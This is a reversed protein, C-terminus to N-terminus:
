INPADKPGAGNAYDRPAERNRVIQKLTEVEPRLNALQKDIRKKMRLLKELKAQKFRLANEPTSSGDGEVFFLYWDYLKEELEDRQDIKKLIDEFHKHFKEQQEETYETM